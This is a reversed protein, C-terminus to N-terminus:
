KIFITCFLLNISRWCAIECMIIYFLQIFFIQNHKCHNRLVWFFLGSFIQLYNIISNKIVIYVTYWSEFYQIYQNILLDQFFELMTTIYQIWVKMVRCVKWCGTWSCRLSPKRLMHLSSGGDWRKAKCM